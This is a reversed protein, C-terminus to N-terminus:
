SDHPRGCTHCVRPQGLALSRADRLVPVVVSMVAKFNAPNEARYRDGLNNWDVFPLPDERCNMATAVERTINMVRYLPWETM